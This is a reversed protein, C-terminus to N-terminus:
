RKDKEKKDKEEPILPLQKTLFGFFISKNPTQLQNLLIEPLFYWYLDQQYYLFAWSMFHSM